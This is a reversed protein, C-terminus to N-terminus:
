HLIYSDNFTYIKGDYGVVYVEGEEDQGFSSIKSPSTAILKNEWVQGDTYKLGWIRMSVFDGYLYVGSLRPLKFGHYVFGGTISFGDDPHAYEVVPITLGSTDCGSPPDFCHMGEMIRWGYNNGGVILDVEEWKGQGVDGAWLAGTVTDFSFRWPNRLGWAWIEPLGAEPRNFFPNTDPIRYAKNQDTSDIDIRLIAGLLTQTNQGNNKPDNASGGDGLGIYLYGDPGFALQGGNHNSYPQKIEFLIRESARDASDPNTSVALESVRSFLSGFTYYVYFKGNSKYDPHFAVSLLGAESPGANVSDRVDLFVKVSTVDAQNNFVKIIGAKEVVFLRNTGDGSHILYVPQSFNLDSFVRILEMDALTDGATSLLFSTNSIRTEIGYPPNQGNVSSAVVLILIFLRLQSM